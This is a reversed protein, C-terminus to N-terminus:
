FITQQSQQRMERASPEQYIRSEWIQIPVKHGVKSPIANGSKRIWGMREANKMLGGMARNDHTVVGSDKIRGRFDNVTFQRMTVCTECLIVLATRRWAQEAADWGRRIAAQTEAEIQSLLSESLKLIKNEM